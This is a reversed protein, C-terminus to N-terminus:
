KTNREAQTKTPMNVQPIIAAHEIDGRVQLAQWLRHCRVVVRSAGPPKGMGCFASSHQDSEGVFHSAKDLGLLGLVAGLPSLLGSFPLRCELRGNSSLLCQFRHEPTFSISPAVRELSLSLAVSVV